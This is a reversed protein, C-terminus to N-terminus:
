IDIYRYIYVYMVSVRLFAGGCGLSRKMRSRVSAVPALKIEAGKRIVASLAPSPSPPPSGIHMEGASDGLCADVRVEGLSAALSPRVPSWVRIQIYTYIYMYIHMYMYICAHIYTYIRIYKYIQVGVRVDGLSAALSPRVPSWVSM